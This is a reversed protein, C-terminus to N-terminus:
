ASLKRASWTWNRDSTLRVSSKDFGVATVFDGIEEVTFAAQLSDAFLQRQRPTAGGAHLEVLRELEDRDKPRALDRVFILGGPRTVRVAGAFMSSPDPLHHVISNSMTVMFMSTAYPLNKCDAQQLQIQERLGALEVNRIAIELMEHAADVAMVRVRPLTQCLLIPIRATGTGLDIMDLRVAELHTEQEASLFSGETEILELKRLEQCLDYVFLENVARHDMTDYEHADASTDMLEPELQRAIM